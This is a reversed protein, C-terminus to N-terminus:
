PVVVAQTVLDGEGVIVALVDGHDLTLMATVGPHLVADLVELVGAQGPQREVVEVRVPDPDFEDLDGCQQEGSELGQDIVLLQGHSLGSPQAVRQQM